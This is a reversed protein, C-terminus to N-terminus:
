LFLQSPQLPGTLAIKDPHIILQEKAQFHSTWSCLARGMIWIQYGMESPQTPGARQHIIQSTDTM